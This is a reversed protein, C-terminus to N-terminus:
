GSTVIYAVTASPSGIAAYEAATGIWLGTAGNQGVVGAHTHDERAYDTSSGVASAAAVAPPAADAPTGGGGGSASVIVSGPTTTTDVTVNSGALVEAPKLYASHPDSAAEHAAVAGAAEYSHGHNGLSVTSGTTGTPVQAIPIKTAADLSAYGSAAGKESEKQYGTHPDTAAEHATITATVEADTALTGPLDGIAHTHSVAAGAHTHDERAYDTSAGAASAGAVAPPATDAPTGGGTASIIVSGPTTTTDVTVNTGALV